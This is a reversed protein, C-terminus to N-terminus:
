RTTTFRGDPGLEAVTTAEKAGQAFLSLPLLLVLVTLLVLLRKM